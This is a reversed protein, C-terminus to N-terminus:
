PSPLTAQWSEAQDWTAPHAYPDRITLSDGFGDTSPYWSDDYEFRMIAAEYPWPLQLVIDEGGNSLNGIYEGAVNIGEGYRSVFSPLHSVVVIYEGSGLLPLDPFTFEIGDTFRVGNLDLTTDSINYLKLYDFESGEPAHYMLETIRLGDLLDLVEPDPFAENVETVTAILEATILFDSSTTSANLGHIALINSGVQLTNIYGSIDFPTPTTGADHSSSGTSSNWQPTGSFNERKVETGNIYAVFGDDYLMNLTMATIDNIDNANVTFPIRIYCTSNKGSGYMDSEVNLSIYLLYNGGSGTNRDYGIGGPSGTVLTWASDDFAGGGRWNYSIAGTPVLVRKAASGTIFTIDTTTITISPNSVGPTPLEFFAYNDSGDPSRGQSIDTTQPGYLVKDIENLEADFLGIMERDASLRFDLHGLTNVDDAIFVAFGNPPAFSLPGLKQKAPQTVPNDTLYLESLEVPLDCPNYLEIFDEDFLVEEQASWENIKLRDPDGLPQFENTYGFTKKTLKWVGGYGVRGISYDNIQPGFVVSDILGGGNAPKDYLYLGEGDASLGFGLHNLQTHLDGYLVTYDGPNMITTTVTQSSFVFKRPLYPDDTLSMDTLDIWSGIPGDYYLEILDPDAGHTHALIENIVLRSYTTDITWTRSAAYCPDTQWIDAANKGTVYVTYSYGDLLGTLEIPIDVSFEGYWPGNPDNISYKYHTVSPGGITLTANTRYTIVDPEGSVAAGSSVYAGMDIGCPGTGIAPSMSKLHFDVQEDVFIPDADINGSGLVNDSGPYNADTIISNNVIINPDAPWDTEPDLDPEWILYKFPRVYKWFISGDIYASSGPGSVNRGNECFQIAADNSDAFVNNIVTVSGGEKVLIGHDNNIFINCVITYDPLNTNAHYSEGGAIANSTTTDPDVSHFNMFINGELYADTADLDLGDDGGGLFVNNIVIFSLNGDDTGDWDIIDDAGGVAFVNGKLILYEDGTMEIGHIPEGSSLGPIFSNSITVQPHEMYIVANNNTEAWIMNDITLLSYQADIAEGQGSGFEHDVYALRNDELTHDFKIGDWYSSSGPVRTFSIREYQTGEALLRGGSQVTIGTGSDFFVTTGSEITLTVGAPITIDGTIHWPGSTTDWTTNSSITGSDTSEDGDDYWIDVFGGELINGTGNPDDYTEVILM